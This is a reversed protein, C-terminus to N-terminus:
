KGTKAGDQKDDWYTSNGDYKEPVRVKTHSALSLHLAEARARVRRMAWSNDDKNEDRKKAENWVRHIYPRCDEGEYVDLREEIMAAGGLSALGNALAGTIRLACWDDAGPKLFACENSYHKCLLGDPNAACILKPNKEDRVRLAAYREQNHRLREKNAKKHVSTLPRADLLAKDDREKVAHIAHDTCLGGGPIDLRERQIREAVAHWQEFVTKLLPMLPAQEDIPPPPAPPPVMFEDRHGEEYPVSEIKGDATKNVASANLYNAFWPPPSPRIVPAWPAHPPPPRTPYPPPPFWTSKEYPDPPPLHPPPAPPPMQLDTGYRWTAVLKAYEVPDM